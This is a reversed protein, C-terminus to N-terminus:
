FWTNVIEEGGELHLWNSLATYALETVRFGIRGGGLDCTATMEKRRLAHMIQRKINELELANFGWGDLDDLAMYANDSPALHRSNLMYLARAQNETLTSPTSM